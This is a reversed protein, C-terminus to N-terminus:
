RHGAPAAPDARGPCYITEVRRRTEADLAGGPAVFAPVDAIAYRVRYGDGDREIHLAQDLDMSGVPDITVFPVATEDRTPLVVDRAAREAEALVDDPFQAPVHLQERIAEFRALLAAQDIEAHAPVPTTTRFRIARQPM